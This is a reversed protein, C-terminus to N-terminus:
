YIISFKRTTISAAGAALSEGIELGTAPTALCARKQPLMEAEPIDTRHSTSPLLL